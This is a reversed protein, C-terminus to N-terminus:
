EADIGTQKAAGAPLQVRSHASDLFDTEVKGGCTERLLRALEATAQRTRQPNSMGDVNIVLNSTSATIRTPHGNRWNMRRCMISKSKGDAYIIEGPDPREVTGPKGLPEFNETGDALDLMLDGSIQDVDDGGCPRLYEPTLSIINFIAVAENIFPLPRSNQLVRDALQCVAPRHKKPNVNFRRYAEEWVLLEAPQPHERLFAACGQQVEGLKAELALNSEAIRIGTAIVIGRHFGPLLAFVRETVVISKSQM